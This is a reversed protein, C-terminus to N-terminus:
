YSGTPCCEVLVRRACCKFPGTDIFVNGAVAGCIPQYVMAMYDNGFHASDIATIKTRTVSGCALRGVVRYATCLEGAIVDGVPAAIGGSPTKAIIAGPLELAKTHHLQCDSGVNLPLSQIRSTIDRRYNQRFVVESTTTNGSPTTAVGAQGDEYEIGFKHIISDDYGCSDWNSPGVTTFDYQRAHYLFWDRAIQNALLVLEASNMPLSDTCVGMDAWGRVHITKATLQVTCYPYVLAPDLYESLAHSLVYYAEHCDEETSDTSEACQGCLMGFRSKPFAVNVYAPLARTWALNCDTGAIQEELNASTINQLFCAEAGAYRQLEFRGFPASAPDATAVL